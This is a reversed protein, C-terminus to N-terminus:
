RSRRAVAQFVWATVVLTLATSGLVTLALPFFEARVRALHELIGTGAPVFLLPLYALLTGSTTRLAPPIQRRWALGLALLVMGLVPGPVPLGSLRVMLEGALQCLLLTTFAALM